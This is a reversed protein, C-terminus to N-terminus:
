QGACILSRTYAFVVKCPRQHHRLAQKPPPAHHAPALSDAHSQWTSQRDGLLLSSQRQVGATWAAMPPQGPRLRGHRPLPDDTCPSRDNGAVPAAMPHGATLLPGFRRSAAARHDLRESLPHVGLGFLGGRWRVVGLATDIASAPKLSMEGLDTYLAAGDIVICEGGCDAPQGCAMLLALPHAVGSRDTHPMLECRGFGVFGRRTSITRNVGNRTM